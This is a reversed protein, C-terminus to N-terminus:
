YSSDVLCSNSPFTASFFCCLRGFARCYAPLFIVSRSLRKLGRSNGLASNVGASGAMGSVSMVQCYM